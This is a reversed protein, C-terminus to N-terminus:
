HRVSTVDAVHAPWVGGDGEDEDLPEDVGPEPPERAAAVLAQLGRGVEGAPAALVARRDGVLGDRPGLQREREGDALAQACSQRAVVIGLLGDVLGREV